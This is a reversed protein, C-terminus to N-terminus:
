KPIRRHFITTISRHSETKLRSKHEDVTADRSFSVAFRDLDEPEKMLIFYHGKRHVIGEVGFDIFNVFEVAEHPYYLRAMRRMKWLHALGYKESVFRKRFFGLIDPPVHRLGPQFGDVHLNHWYTVVGEAINRVSWPSVVIETDFHYTETRISVSLVYSGRSKPAGEVTNPNDAATRDGTKIFTPKLILPIWFRFSNKPYLLSVRYSLIGLENDLDLSTLIEDKFNSPRILSDDFDIEEFCTKPASITISLGKAAVGGDNEIAFRLPYVVDDDVGEPHLFIWSRNEPFSDGILQDLFYVRLDPKRFSGSKLAIWLDILKDFALVIFAIM